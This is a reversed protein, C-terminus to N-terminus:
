EFGLLGKLCLELGKEELFCEKIKKSENIKKGKKVYRQRYQENIVL